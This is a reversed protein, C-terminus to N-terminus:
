FIVWEKKGNRRCHIEREKKSFPIAVSVAKRRRASVTALVGSPRRYFPVAVNQKM